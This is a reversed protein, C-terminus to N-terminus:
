LDYSLPRGATFAALLHSMPQTLGELEVGDNSGAGVPNISKTPPSTKAAGVLDDDDTGVGGDAPGRTGLVEPSAV